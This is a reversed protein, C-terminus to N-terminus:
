ARAGPHRRVGRHRRPPRRGRRPATQASAADASPRPALAPPPEPTAPLDLAPDQGLVAEHLARLEAGPEVGIQEVLGTRADRYAALADSQRGSRYLALMRQAHLHERLPQEAVLLELEAIV